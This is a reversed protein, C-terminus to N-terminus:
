VKFSSCRHQLTTVQILRHCKKFIIKSCRGNISTKILWLMSITLFLMLICMVKHQCASVKLQSSVWKNTLSRHKCRSLLQPTQTSYLPQSEFLLLQLLSPVTRINTKMLNKDTKRKKVNVRYLHNPRINVSKSSKSSSCNALRKTMRGNKRILTKLSSLKLM